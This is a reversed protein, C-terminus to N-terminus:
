QARKTSYHTLKYSGLGNGLFKLLQGKISQLLKLSHTWPTGGATMGFTCNEVGM